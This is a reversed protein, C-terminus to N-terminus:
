FPIKDDKNFLDAQETKAAKFNAIRNQDSYGNQGKQIKVFVDATMDIIMSALADKSVGTLEEKKKGNAGMFSVIQQMAINVATNNSNILNFMHFLVRGKHSESFIKFQVNLYEGGSKSQRWEAKEAVVSYVGEPLLDYDNSEEVKSFDFM